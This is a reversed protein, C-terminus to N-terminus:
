RDNEGGKVWYNIRIRDGPYLCGQKRIWPNLEHISEEFELIYRSGYTNKELYAESIERLCDGRQVIYETEVLVGDVQYFGTGFVLAGIVIAGGVIIKALLKAEAAKKAAIKKHAQRM